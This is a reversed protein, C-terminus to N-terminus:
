VPEASSSQDPLGPVRQYLRNVMARNRMPDAQTFKAEWQKRSQYEAMMDRLLAVEEPLLAGLPKTEDMRENPM